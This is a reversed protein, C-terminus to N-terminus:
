WGNKIRVIKAYIPECRKLEILFEFKDNTNIKKVGKRPLKGVNVILMKLLYYIM